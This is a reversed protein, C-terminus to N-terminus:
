KVFMLDGYLAGSTWFGQRRGVRCCHCRCKKLISFNDSKLSMQFIKRRKQSLDENRRQEMFFRSENRTFMNWIPWRFKLLFERSDKTAQPRHTPRGFPRLAFADSKKLWCSKEGAWDGTKMWCMVAGVGGAVIECETGTGDGFLLLGNGDFTSASGEGFSSIESWNSRELQSSGATGPGTRWRNANLERVGSM